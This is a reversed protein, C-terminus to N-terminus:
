LEPLDPNAPLHRHKVRVDLLDITVHLLLYIGLPEAGQPLVYVGPCVSGIKCTVNVPCLQEPSIPPSPPVPTERSMVPALM